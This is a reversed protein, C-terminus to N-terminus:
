MPFGLFNETYEKVADIRWQGEQNQRLEYLETHDAAGMISSLRVQTVVYAQDERIQQFLVKGHHYKMRMNQLLPGQSAIWEEKTLGERFAKTTLEAAQTMNSPYVQLWRQVIQTPSVGESFGTVPSLFVFLLLATGLSRTKRSQEM